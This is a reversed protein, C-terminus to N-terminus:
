YTYINNAVLNITLLSHQNDSSPVAFKCEIGCGCTGCFQLFNKRLRLDVLKHYIQLLKKCKRLQLHM